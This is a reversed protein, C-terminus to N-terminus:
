DVISKEPNVLLWAFAGTLLLSAYVYFAPDWRARGVYGLDSLYDVLGGLFIPSFYAGAVGMANLLGWLAGVHPGSIEAVVNWGSPLSLHIALCAWAACLAALWPDDFQISLVMGGAASTLAPVTLLRRSWKREGTLRVLWDSLYGGCFSGVAGSILVISALQSSLESSLSRGEQLYTSYWFFFLYTTFACCTSIAGMLWVNAASLVKKWPISPHENAHTRAGRGLAIYCRESENVAPHEAPDDCYWWYFWCGWLIGPVGLAVFTLRWGFHQILGEAVVPSVAGGLLAAMLVIGMARGRAHAPFWREVSKIANPLAGAEGAGFLFRVILLLILGNSLGTIMTLLSWIWVAGTLVKRSGRRDGWHGVPVQFLGYALTFSGFVFGMSTHSIGLEDEMRRAAQSICIRDLYLIFSMVCLFGLVRQRVHTPATISGHLEDSPTTM